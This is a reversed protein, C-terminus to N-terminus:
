YDNPNIGEMTEESPSIGIQEKGVVSYKTPILQNEEEDSRIM